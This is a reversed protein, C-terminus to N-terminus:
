LDQDIIITKSEPATIFEYSCGGDLGYTERFQDALTSYPNNEMGGGAHFIDDVLNDESVDSLIVGETKEREM